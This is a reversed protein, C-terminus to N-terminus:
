RGAKRPRRMLVALGPPAEGALHRIVKQINRDRVAKPLRVYPNIDIIRVKEVFASKLSM